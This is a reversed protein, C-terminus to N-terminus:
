KVEEFDILMIDQDNALDTFYRDMLENYAKLCEESTEYSKIIHGDATLILTELDLDFFYEKEVNFKESYKKFAKDDLARKQQEILKIETEKMNLEKALESTSLKANERLEKAKEGYILAPQRKGIGIMPTSGFLKGNQEKFIIEM